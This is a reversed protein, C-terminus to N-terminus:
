RAGAAALAESLEVYDGARVGKLAAWGGNVELVYRSPTRVGRPTDTRPTAEPVIGVIRGTSDIFIMDLPILTNRMWFQQVQERDFLFLMGEDAGLSTRYMMGRARSEDDVALEVSVAHRRGDATIIGVRSRQLAQRAPSALAENPASRCGSLMLCALLLTISM